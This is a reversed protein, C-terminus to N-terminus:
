PNKANLLERIATELKVAHALLDSDENERADVKLRDLLVLTKNLMVECAPGYSSTGEEGTYITVPQGCCDCRRPEISGV